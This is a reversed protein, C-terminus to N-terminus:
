DELSFKTKKKSGSTDFDAKLKKVAGDIAKLIKDVDEQTYEYNRTSSCNGLLRIDDLVRQTRASAITIFRERKTKM